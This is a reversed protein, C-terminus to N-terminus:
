RGHRDRVEFIAVLNVGIGPSPTLVAARVSRDRQVYREDFNAACLTVRARSSRVARFAIRASGARLSYLANLADLAKRSSSTRCAIIPIISRIALAEGIIKTIGTLDKCDIGARCCGFPGVCGAPRANCVKEGDM